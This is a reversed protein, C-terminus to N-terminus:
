LMALVLNAFQYNTFDFKSIYSDHLHLTSMNSFLYVSHVHTKILIFELYNKKNEIVYTIPVIAEIDIGIHVKLM